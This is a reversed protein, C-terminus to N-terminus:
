KRYHDCSVKCCSFRPPYKTVTVTKRETNHPLENSNHLGKEKCSKMRKSCLIYHYRGWHYVNVEQDPQAQSSGPNTGPFFFCHERPCVWTREKNQVTSAWNAGPVFGIQGQAFQPRLAASCRLRFSIWYLVPTQFLWLLREGSGLGLVPYLKQVWPHVIKIWYQPQPRAIEYPSCLEGWCGWQIFIPRWSCNKLTSTGQESPAAGRRM